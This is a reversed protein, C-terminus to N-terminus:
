ICALEAVVRLVFPRRPRHNLPCTAGDITERLEFGSTVWHDPGRDSSPGNQSPVSATIHLKYSPAFMTRSETSGQCPRYAMVLCFGIVALLLRVNSM